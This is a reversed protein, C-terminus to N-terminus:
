AANVAAGYVTGTEKPYGLQLHSEEAVRVWSSIPKKKTDWRKKSITEGLLKREEGSRISWVFGLALLALLKEIRQEKCLKTEELNFGRSKYASFMMEIEWRRKYVPLTEESMSRNSVLILPEDGKSAYVGGLHLTHNMMRHEGYHTFTDKPLHEFWESAAGEGDVITNGRIRIVFPIRHVNLFSFWEEGIFERDAVLAEIRESGFLSVFRELIEKREETDSNGRKGFEEDSGLFKWLLPIAMGRYAVSLFLINVNNEGVKWNTRDMALIWKEEPLFVSLMQAMANMDVEFDKFFRQCRRYNSSVKAESPFSESVKQLNVSRAQIMGMIFSSLFRTRRLDWTPLHSKFLDTMKNIHQM